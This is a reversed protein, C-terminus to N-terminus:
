HEIHPDRLQIKPPIVVRDLNLGISDAASYLLPATVHMALMETPGEDRWAASSGAPLLDIDGAVQLRPLSRGEFRCNARVPASLHMSVSHYTSPKMVAVGGTTAFTRAEVGTWGRGRSSCREIFNMPRDLAANLSGNQM